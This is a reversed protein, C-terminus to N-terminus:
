GALGPSFMSLGAPNPTMVPCAFAFVMLAFYSGAANVDSVHAVIREGILSYRALVAPFAVGYWLLYAAVVAVVCGVGLAEPIWVALIPRRRLLM